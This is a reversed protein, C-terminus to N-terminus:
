SKFLKEGCCVCHYIGAEHNNYYAGTFARETGKQRTVHYAEPSLKRNWEADTKKMINASMEQGKAIGAVSVGTALIFLVLWRRMIRMGSFEQKYYLLLPALISHTALINISLYNRSISQHWHTPQGTTILCKNICDKM